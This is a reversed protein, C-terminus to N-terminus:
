LITSLHRVRAYFYAPRVYPKFPAFGPGLLQLPGTYVPDQQDPNYDVYRIVNGHLDVLNGQVLPPSVPHFSLPSLHPFSSSLLFLSIMLVTGKLCTCTCLCVRLHM